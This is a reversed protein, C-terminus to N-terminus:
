AVPAPTNPLDVGNVKLGGDTIVNDFLHPLFGTFRANGCYGVYPAGHYSGSVYEYRIGTLDFGTIQNGGGNIVQTAQVTQNMVVTSGRSGETGDSCSWRDDSTMAIQGATFKLSGVGQDFARNNWGLVRQIDGKDVHGSGDAFTVTASAPGALAVTAALAAVITLIKRM